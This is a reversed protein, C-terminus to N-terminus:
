KWARAGLGSMVDRFTGRLPANRFVAMLNLLHWYVRKPLSVPHGYDAWFRVLRFEKNLAHWLLTAALWPRGRPLGHRAALLMAEFVSHSGKDPPIEVIAATAVLNAFGRTQARLCWDIVALGRGLRDEFPGVALWAERPILMGEPDLWSVAEFPPADSPAKLEYMWLPHWNLQLPDWRWGPFRIRVPHRADAVRCGVLARAHAMRVQRLGAMAQRSVPAQATTLVVEEAGGAFAEALLRNCAAVEDVAILPLDPM